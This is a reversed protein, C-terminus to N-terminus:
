SEVRTPEEQALSASIAEEIERQLNAKSGWVRLDPYDQLVLRLLREVLDPSIGREAVLQDLIQQEADPLQLDEMPGITRGYHSAIELAEDKLDFEM